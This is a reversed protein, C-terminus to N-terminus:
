LEYNKGTLSSISIINKYANPVYLVSDLLLVHDYLDISTSGIAKAAASAGNGLKLTM